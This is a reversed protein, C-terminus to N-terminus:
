AQGGSKRGSRPGLVLVLKWRGHESPDIVGLRCAQSACRVSNQWYLADSNEVRKTRLTSRYSFQDALTEYAICTRDCKASVRSFSFCSRCRGNRRCICKSTSALKESSAMGQAGGFFQLDASRFRPSMEKVPYLRGDCRDCIQPKGQRGTAGSRLIVNRGDFRIM